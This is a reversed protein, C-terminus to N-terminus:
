WVHRAITLAEDTKWEAPPRGTEVLRAEIGLFEASEVVDHCTSFVVLRLEGIESSRQDRCCITALADADRALVVMAPGEVVGNKIPIPKAVMSMFQAHIGRSELGARLTVDHRTSEVMLRTSNMEILSFMCDLIDRWDDIKPLVLTPEIQRRRLLQSAKEGAVLFRSDKMAAFFREPDALENGRELLQRTGAVTLLVAGDFRAIMLQGAFDTLEGPDPGAAVVPLPEVDDAGFRKAFRILPDAPDDTPVVFRVGEFLNDHSKMSGMITAIGM